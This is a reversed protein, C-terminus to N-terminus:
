SPRGTRSAFDDLVPDAPATPGGTAYVLLLEVGAAKDDGVLAEGRVLAYEATDREIRAVLRITEGPRVPRRFTARRIEGLMPQGREPHAHRLCKAAAQGVMEALLVGPVVPFGPFHDRFIETDPSLVTEAEVSRGSELAVIRDVLLFRV